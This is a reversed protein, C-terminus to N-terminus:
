TAWLCIIGARREVKPLPAPQNSYRHHGWRQWQKYPTEASLVAGSCCVSGSGLKKGECIFTLQGELVYFAEDEAHHVHYPTAFGAPILQEILGFAGGTSEGTAKM